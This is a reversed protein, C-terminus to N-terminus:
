KIGKVQKLDAIYKEKTIAGSKILTNMIKLEQENLEFGGGRSGRGTQNSDGVPPADSKRPNSFKHPFEKKVEEEVKKLVDSPSMGQQHYKAGVEDAFERMYKTTGYWPNKTQWQAFEPHVGQEQKVIPKQAEQRLEEFERETETIKEDLTEFKDADGEVLAQKRESKLTELARKYETERVKTYHTKLAEVAETVNKIQKSQSAIKDYLPKRGVFEKADIFDAEDGSFEEKPRWGMEMAKLEVESYQPTQENTSGEDVQTNEDSM